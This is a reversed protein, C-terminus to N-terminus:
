DRSSVKCINFKSLRLLFRVAWSLIKPLSPTNGGVQIVVSCDNWAGSTFLMARLFTQLSSQIGTFTFHSVSSTASPLVSGPVRFAMWDPARVSGWVSVEGRFLVDCNEPWRERHSSRWYSYQRWRQARCPSVSEQSASQWRQHTLEGVVRDSSRASSQKLAVIVSGHIWRLSM